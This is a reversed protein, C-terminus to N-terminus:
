RGIEIEERVRTPKSKRTDIDGALRRGASANAGSRQLLIMTNQTSDRRSSRKVENANEEIEVVM